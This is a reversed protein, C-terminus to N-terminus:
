KKTVQCSQFSLLVAFPTAGYSGKLELKQLIELGNVWQYGLNVSLRTSEEPKASDYDADYSTLVLGNVSKTFKPFIHSRFEATTVSLQTIAFDKSMTTYADALNEKYHLSYLAGVTDLQYQSQAEPFPNNVMFLKWTDFFGSTLQEMGGYIQALATNMEQSQGTLENHTITVKDDAAFSVVFRLQSLIKVAADAGAPNQQRQEQLLANWDPTLECQFTSMGQTRLSYYAQSAQTLTQRDDSSQAVAATALLLVVVVLAFKTKVVEERNEAQLWVAQPERLLEQVLGNM